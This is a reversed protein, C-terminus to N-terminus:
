TKQVVTKQRVLNEQEPKIETEEMGFLSFLFEFFRLIVELLVM